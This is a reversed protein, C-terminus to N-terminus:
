QHLEFFDFDFVSNSLKITIFHGSNDPLCDLILKDEWEKIEINFIKIKTDFVSISGVILDGDISGIGDFLTFNTDFTSGDSRIFGSDFLEVKFM